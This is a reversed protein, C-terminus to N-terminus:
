EKIFPMSETGEVKILYTGPALASVNIRQPWQSIRINQLVRGQVDMLLATKGTQNAASGSLWLVDKAPVPYLTITNSSKLMVTVVASYTEKGDKDVMRLRYYFLSPQLAKDTYTYATESQAAGKAQVQAITKFSRGDSSRQLEFHSTNVENATRWNLLADNGALVKGSFQILTLPLIVASSEYAGMDVIGNQIRIAGAMDTSIGAATTNNGANVAPSNMQLQFGDDATGFMNDAGAPSNEHQFLPNSGFLSNTTNSYSAATGQMMSNTITYTGVLTLDNGPAVYTGNQAGIDNKYFITNSLNLVSGAGSRIAGGNGGTRNNYLTSNIISLPNSGNLQIAGGLGAGYNNYLLCNTMVTTSSNNWM